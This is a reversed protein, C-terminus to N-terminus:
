CRSRPRSRAGTGIDSRELAKMGRRAPGRRRAQRGGSAWCWEAAWRADARGAGRWGAVSRPWATAARRGRSRPGTASPASPGGCGAATWGRARVEVAGGAVPDPGGGGVGLPILLGGYASRACSRADAARGRGASRDRGNHRSFCWPAGPPRPPAASRTTTPPATDREERWRMTVILAYDIAIGLGILATLFLVIFSVDTIQPWAWCRSCRPPIAVVAMMLPLLALASAFVFALVALAAVGAILTENLVGRARRPRARRRRWSRRGTLRVQAGDIRARAIVRRPPRWRGEPSPRSRGTRALGRTSSWSRPAGTTLCTRAIAPPATRPSGARRAAGRGLERELARLERRAVRSVRTRQRAPARGVAVM